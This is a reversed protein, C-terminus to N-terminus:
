SEATYTAEITGGDLPLEIPVSIRRTQNAGVLGFGITQQVEPGSLSQRFVEKGSADVTAEGRVRGSPGVFAIRDGEIAVDGVYPAGGTGDYIVGGSILVDYVPQDAQVSMSGGLLLAAAAAGLMWRRM